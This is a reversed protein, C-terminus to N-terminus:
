EASKPEPILGLEQQSLLEDIDLLIVLSDRVRGMGKMFRTDIRESFEPAPQTNEESLFVVDSVQDVVLGILKTRVQVIIIVTYKNYEMEAMGFKNRLDIVPVVLGRLNIVGKIFKPVNPITTIHTYNVLERVKLIEIGYQEGGLMFTILQLGSGSYTFHLDAEEPEDLNQFNELEM